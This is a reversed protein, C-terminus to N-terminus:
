QITDQLNSLWGMMPIVKSKFDGSLSVTKDSLKPTAETDIVYATGSFNGLIKKSKVKTLNITGSNMIYFKTPSVAVGVLQNGVFEGNILSKYDFDAVDEETLVNNVTFSNGESLNSGVIRYVLFPFELDNEDSVSQLADVDMSTALGIACPSETENYYMVVSSEYERTGEGDITCTARGSVLNFVDQMFNGSCSIVVIALGVFLTASVIMKKM